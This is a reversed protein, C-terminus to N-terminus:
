VYKINRGASLLFPMETASWSVRLRLKNESSKDKRDMALSLTSVCLNIFIIFGPTKKGTKQWRKVIIVRLNRFLHTLYPNIDGAGRMM